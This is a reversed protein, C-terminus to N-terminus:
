ERIRRLSYIEESITTKHAKKEKKRIIESFRSYIEKIFGKSGIVLGDSLYRLRRTIVSQRAIEGKAAEDVDKYVGVMYLTKLYEETQRPTDEEYIGDFSLLGGKNGSQVRYGISSWRYEEPKKVINARVPNLDIYILMNQLAAGGEVLVSKFRDRWFYGNRNNSRNYWQSFSQKIAKVYESIDSLKKRYYTIKDKYIWSDRNYFESLRTLIEEDSYKDASESKVLLHFHNDMICYGIVKVLYLKSFLRILNFLKEKEVEGLYYQRGVTRSIIHYYADEGTVKIRRLRPM